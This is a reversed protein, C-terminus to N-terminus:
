KSIGLHSSMAALVHPALGLPRAVLVGIPEVARVAEDVEPPMPTVIPEDDVVAATGEDADPEAGPAAGPQGFRIPLVQFLAKGLV